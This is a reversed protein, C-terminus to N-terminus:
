RIRVRYTLTMESGRAVPVQFEAVSASKKLPPHSSQIIEWDGGIHERVIVTVDEAKSNRIKVQYATEVLDSGLRKFDIQKREATLDFASGAVINLKEDKPIHEIQDEGLFIQGLKGDRKYVRVTGAPLPMGMKNHESNEIELVIQVRQKEAEGSTRAIFVPQEEILYQKKFSLGEAALLNLRSSRNNELTARRNLSYLHYEFVPQQQFDPAPATKAEMARLAEVSAAVPRGRVRRVDGAVLNILANEFRAGSRNNITAWGSLEASKEDDSLMLIYDASWDLGGTLYTAEIRREGGQSSVTWSLTPTSVLTQPLEPLIVYNYPFNVYIKGEILWVNGGRTSLLTAPMQQEVDDGNQKVVRVLTIEKGVYSELLKSADLLDFNYEQERVVLGPASLHVSSPEIKASVDAFFLRVTGSPLRINRAERVLAFDQAYVTIALDSRDGARSVAQQASGLGSFVLVLAPTLLLIKIRM